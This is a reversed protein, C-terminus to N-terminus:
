AYSDIGLFEDCEGQFRMSGHLEKVVKRTEGALPYTEDGAVFRCAKNEVYVLSYGAIVKVGREKGLKRVRAAKSWMGSAAFMGSALMYNASCLPELDLIRPVASEGIKAKGSSRCASLIASWASAGPKLMSPMSEILHIATELRGARALMDAACAYHEPGLNLGDEQVMSQFLSIGEEVLGGHSCASLVSLSTAANPKLGEERLQVLLSLAERALGNMGYGAIMASWTIINRCPIRDFVRRSSEIAGSKSYIDLIATGVEVKDALGRRIAIGHALKSRKLEASLACAELLNVMTVGNPQEGAQIMEGFVHIAEDPKGSDALGAILASWSVTDRIKLRDFLKQALSVHSCKGYADILCNLLLENTEYERRIAVGHVSKCWAPNEYFKCTRLIHVLTVEDFEVGGEAMSSFLLLAEPFEENLILGSLMSNWSVLSKWPLKGFVVFASDADRCKFYMDIMSNEVFTDTDLGKRTVIGHVARGLMLDGVSACAKLVSVVMVEDPHIRGESVMKQFIILGIEPEGSNVYGGIIVSWAIVDREPMEDFLKEASEMNIEAYMGLLSNRVSPLCQFGSKVVYAHVELGEHEGQARRCAQIVLVLTSVNPEFKVARAKRFWQLGAKWDGMDLFGHILINWSISDRAEMSRFIAMASFSDRCKMYFDLASNAVSPSSSLGLKVACAQVSKVHPASIQSCAKLISSLVSPETVQLGARRLENYHSFVEFWKGASSLERIRSVPNPIGVVM